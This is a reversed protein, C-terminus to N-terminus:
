NEYLKAIATFVVSWTLKKLIPCTPTVRQGHTLTAANPNYIKQGHHEVVLDDTPVIRECFIQVKESTHSKLELM